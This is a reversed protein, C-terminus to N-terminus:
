ASCRDATLWVALSDYIHHHQRGGVVVLVVVLSSWLAAAVSSMPSNGCSRHGGLADAGIFFLTTAAALRTQGGGHSAM